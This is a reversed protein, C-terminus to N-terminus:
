TSKERTLPMVVYQYDGHRLVGACKGDILDLTIEADPDLVRLADLIFQPDFSITVDADSGIPLTVESKGNSTASNLRLSGDGFAFEVAKSEETAFVRAQRLARAFSSAPLPISFKPKPPFVDAYRPFRGEVLRTTVTAKGCSFVASERSLRVTVTADPDVLIKQIVSLSKPSLLVTFESTGTGTGVMFALRKGDTAVMRAVGDAFELLVSSLAYRSNETAAAFVTRKILQALTGAQIEHETGIVASESPFDGPDATLLEFKSSAAKVVLGKGSFDLEIREDPLERIVGAFTPPLLEVGSDQSEVGSVHYTVGIESDTAYLTALNGNLEFRVNQLIPKPHRANVVSTALSLATSLGERNATLKM